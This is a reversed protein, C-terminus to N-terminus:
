SIRSNGRSKRPPLLLKVNRPTDMTTGKLRSGGLVRFFPVRHVFRIIQIVRYPVALIVYNENGLAPSLGQVLFQSIIQAFDKM